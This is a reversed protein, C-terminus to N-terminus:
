SNKELSMMLQLFERWKDITMPGTLDKYTEILYHEKSNKFAKELSEQEVRRRLIEIDNEPRENNDIM